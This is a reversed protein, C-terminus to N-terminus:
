SLLLSSHSQPSPVLDCSARCLLVGFFLLDAPLPLGDQQKSLLHVSIWRFAPGGVVLLSSYLPAELWLVVEIYLVSAVAGIPIVRTSVIYHSSGGM